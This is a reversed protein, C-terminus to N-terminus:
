MGIREFGQIIARWWCPYLWSEKPKVWSLRHYKCEPALVWRDFGQMHLHGRFHKSM